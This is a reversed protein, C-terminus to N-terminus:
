AVLGPDPEYGFNGIWRAYREERKRIWAEDDAKKDVAQRRKIAAIMDRRRQDDKIGYRRRAAEDLPAGLAPRSEAATIEPSGRTRRLESNDAELHRKEAELRRNADRLQDAGNKVLRLNRELRANQDRQQQLANERGQLTKRVDALDNLTECAEALVQEATSKEKELQTNRTKCSKLKDLFDSAKRNAEATATEADKVSQELEEIKKQKEMDHTQCESLQNRLETLEPDTSNNSDLNEYLTEVVARLEELQGTLKEIEKLCGECKASCHDLKGQLDRCKSRWGDTEDLPTTKLAKLRTVERQLSDILKQQKENHREREQFLGNAGLMDPKGYAAELAQQLSEISEQQRKINERERKLAAEAQNLQRRQNHIHAELQRKNGEYHNFIYRFYPDEQNHIAMINELWMGKRWLKEIFQARNWDRIFKAEM